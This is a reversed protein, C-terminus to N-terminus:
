STISKKLHYTLAMEICLRLADVAPDDQGKFVIARHGEFIFDNPFLLRFTEVLTTKCNFYLFYEEPRSVKWGMRVTSGSKSQVTLYAPEGWKLVEELEGVGETESAVSFILERLLGLKQRIHVPYAEFVDQVNANIFPTM